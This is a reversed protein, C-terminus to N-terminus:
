SMEHGPNSLSVIYLRTALNNEFFDVCPVGMYHLTASFTKIGAAVQADRYVGKHHDSKSENQKSRLQTRHRM